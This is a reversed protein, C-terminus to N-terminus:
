GEHNLIETLKRNRIAEIDIKVNDINVMERIKSETFRIKLWMSFTPHEDVSMAPVWEGSTLLVLLPTENTIEEM